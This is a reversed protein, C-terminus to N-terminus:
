SSFISSQWTLNTIFGLKSDILSFKTNLLIARVIKEAFNASLMALKLKVTSFISVEM